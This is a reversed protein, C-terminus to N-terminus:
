LHQNRVREERRITEHDALRRFVMESLSFGSLLSLVILAASLWGVDMKVFIVLGILMAVLSIVSRALQAQMANGFRGLIAM